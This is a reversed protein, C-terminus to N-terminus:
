FIWGIGVNILDEPDDGDSDRLQYDAKVVLGPTVFFTFGFTWEDRTGNPDAAVGSPMRWQTDVHDYRVFVVFDAHKLRGAKWSDPMVHCAAEAYYGLIAQATGNPLEGANRIRQLAWEGRLDVPGISYEADAAYMAIDADVDPDKGNTGNDLGGYYYAVGVRLRQDCPVEQNVFPHVDLRASVAPENLSSREKMRGGRIGKVADFESGDLSSTLAVRYSLEDCVQGYVSVGDAFWTSPIVYKAFTPREVGNFSVPEHSQNVLGVPVLMRGAQVSAIESTRFDIYLQEISLEGDEGDTVYAHEIEIESELKVWDAFDYGLYAVLRHIDFVQKGGGLEFNGHLEGYGGFRLRDTWSPNEAKRRDLATDIMAELEANSAGAVPGAGSAARLRALEQQVRGLEATHRAREATREKELQGVRQALDRVLIELRAIEADRPAGQAGATVGSLTLGLVL